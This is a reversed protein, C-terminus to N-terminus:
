AAEQDHTHWRPPPHPPPRPAHTPPQSDEPGRASVVPPQTKAYTRILDIFLDGRTPAHRGGAGTRAKEQSGRRPHTGQGHTKDVPKAPDPIHARWRNTRREPNGQGGKSPEVLLWGAGELHRLHRRTTSPHYGTDQALRGISPRAGSGDTDMYSSLALATHRLPPPLGSDTLAKRWAFLLLSPM